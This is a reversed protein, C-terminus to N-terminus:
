GDTVPRALDILRWHHFQGRVSGAGQERRSICTPLPTRADTNTGRPSLQPYTAPPDGGADKSEQRVGM